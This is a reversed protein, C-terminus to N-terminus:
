IATLWMLFFAITRRRWSRGRETLLRPMFILNGPAWRLRDDSGQDGSQRSRGMQMSCYMHAALTTLAFVALAGALKQVHFGEVDDSPNVIALYYFTDAFYANM